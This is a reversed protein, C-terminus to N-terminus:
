GLSFSQLAQKCSECCAPLPFKSLFNLTPPIHIDGVLACKLIETESLHEFLHNMCQKTQILNQRWQTGFLFFDIPHGM